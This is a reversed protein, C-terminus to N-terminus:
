GVEGVRVTVEESLALIAVDLVVDWFEEAMWVCQEGQNWEVPIIVEADESVLVGSSVVRQDGAAPGYGIRNHEATHLHPITSITLLLTFGYLSVVLNM